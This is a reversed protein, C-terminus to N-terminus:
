ASASASSKVTTKDMLKCAVGIAALALLLSWLTMPEPMAVALFEQPRNSPQGTWTSPTYITGSYSCSGSGCASEAAQLDNAIETAYAGVGASDSFGPDFLDWLAYQYEGATVTDTINAMIQQALWGAEQYGVSGYTSYFLAGSPNSFTETTATWSEGKSIEDYADDCILSYTRGNVSITYPAIYYDGLYQSVGTLEMSVTDARLKGPPGLMFALLMAFMGLTYKRM